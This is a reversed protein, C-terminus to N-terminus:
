VPQSEIYVNLTETGTGTVDLTKASADIEDGSSWQSDLTTDPSITIDFNDGNTPDYGNSAGEAVQIDNSNTSPNEIRLRSIYNGSLDSAGGAGCATLDITASGAALTITYEAVIVTDGADTMTWGANLAINVDAVIHRSDEIRTISIVQIGGTGAVTLGDALVLAITCGNVGAIDDMAIQHDKEYTLSCRIEASEESCLVMQESGARSGSIPTYTDKKHVRDPFELNEIGHIPVETPSGGPTTVSLTLGSGYSGDFDDTLPM